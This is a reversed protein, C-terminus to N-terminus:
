ISGVHTTLPNNPSEMPIRIGYLSLATCDNQLDAENSMAQALYEIVTISAPDTGRLSSLVLVRTRGIGIKVTQIQRQQTSQYQSDWLTRHQVQTRVTNQVRPRRNQPRGWPDTGVPQIQPRTRRRAEPGLDPEPTLLTPGGSNSSGPAELIPTSSGPNPTRQPVPTYNSSSEGYYDPQTNRATCGLCLTLLLVITPSQYYKM